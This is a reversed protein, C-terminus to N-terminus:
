EAVNIACAVIEVDDKRNLKRLFRDFQDRYKFGKNRLIGEERWMIEYAWM